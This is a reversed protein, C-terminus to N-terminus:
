RTKIGEARSGGYMTAYDDEIKDFKDLEMNGATILQQLTCNFKAILKKHADYNMLAIAAGLRDTGELDPPDKEYKVEVTGLNNEEFFSNILLYCENDIDYFSGIEVQSSIHVNRLDTENLSGNERAVDEIMKTIFERIFTEAYTFGGAYHLIRQCNKLTLKEINEINEMKNKSFMDDITHGKNIALNCLDHYKDILERLTIDLTIVNNNIIIGPGEFEKLYAGIEDDTLDFPLDLYYTHDGEFPRVYYRVASTKSSEQNKVILNSHIKSDLLGGYRMYMVNNDTEENLADLISKAFEQLVNDILAPIIKGRKQELDDAGSLRYKEVYDYLDEKKQPNKEDNRSYHYIYQKEMYYFKILDRITCKTSIEMSSDDIRGGEVQKFLEPYSHIKHSILKCLAAFYEKPFDGIERVIDHINIVIYEDYAENVKKNLAEDLSGCKKDVKKRVINKIFNVLFHDLFYGEYLKSLIEDVYVSDIADDIYDIDTKVVSDLKEFSNEKDNFFNLLEKYFRAFESITMEIEIGNDDTELVIKNSLGINKSCTNFIEFVKQLYTDRSISSDLYYSYDGKWNHIVTNPTINKQEYYYGRAEYIGLKFRFPADVIKDWTVYKAKSELRKKEELLTKKDDLCNILATGIFGNVLNDHINKEIINSDQRERGLIVDFYNNKPM